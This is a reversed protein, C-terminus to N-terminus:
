SKRREGFSLVAKGLQIRDGQKLPTPQSIREGNLFTGGPTGADALLYRNGDRVIRAHLREIGNDGFLGFDCSEARGITVEDKAILVERGARFGAEVKLWAEKLIVQALGVALGICAGLAVFGTASPSWPSVDERDKFVGDWLLKLLLFVIGGLAGGASGGMMGKKVKAWAARADQERFLRELLAFAGISSGVLFGTLTWGILLFIWHDLAGYLVQGFVAAILGGFAGIVVSALLGLRAERRSASSVTWVRDLLTLALSVFLGLFFGQVGTEGLPHRGAAFRGFLWGVFAAAGGALACYYVFLRFSM